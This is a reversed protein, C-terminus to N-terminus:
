LVLNALLEDGEEDDLFAEYGNGISMSNECNSSQEIHHHDAKISGHRINTGPIYDRENKSFSSSLYQIINTKSEQFYFVKSCWSM